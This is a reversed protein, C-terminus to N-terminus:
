RAFVPVVDDAAPANAQIGGEFPTERRDKTAMSPQGTSGARAGTPIL